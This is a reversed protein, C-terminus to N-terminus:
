RNEQKEYYVFYALISDILDSLRFLDEKDKVKNKISYSLLDCISKAKDQRGAIYALRSPVLFIKDLNNNDINNSIRVENVVDKILYHIKRLQSITVDADVLSKGLMKGYDDIDKYKLEKLSNIKNIDNNIRQIEYSGKNINDAKLGRVVKYCIRSAKITYRAM